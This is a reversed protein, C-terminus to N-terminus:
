SEKPFKSSYIKLLHASLLSGFSKSCCIHLIFAYWNDVAHGCVSPMCAELVPVPIYHVPTSVKQVLFIYDFVRHILSCAAFRTGKHKKITIYIYLICQLPWTHYYM